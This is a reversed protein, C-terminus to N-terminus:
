IQQDHLSNESARSSVAPLPELLLAFVEMLMSAAHRAEDMSITEQFEKKWIVAFEQLDADTFQMGILM